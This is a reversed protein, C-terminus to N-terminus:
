GDKMNHPLAFMSIDFRNYVVKFSNPTCRIILALSWLSSVGTSEAHRLRPYQREYPQFRTPISRHSPPRLSALGGVRTSCFYKPTAPRQWSKLNLFVRSAFRTAVACALTWSPTPVVHKKVCTEMRRSIPHVNAITLKVSNPPDVDSQGLLHTCRCQGFDDTSCILRSEHEFRLGDITCRLM